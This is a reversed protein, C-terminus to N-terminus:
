LCSERSMRHVTSVEFCQVLIEGISNYALAWAECVGSSDVHAFVVALSFLSCLVRHDDLLDGTVLHAADTSGTHM